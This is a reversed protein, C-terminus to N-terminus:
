EGGFRRRLPAADVGVERGEIVFALTAGASDHRPGVSEPHNAVGRMLGVARAILEVFDRWVQLLDDARFADATRGRVPHNMYLRLLEDDPRVEDIRVAFHADNRRFEHGTSVRTVRAVQGVWYILDVEGRHFVAKILDIDVRESHFAQDLFLAILRLRSLDRFDIRRLDRGGKFTVM